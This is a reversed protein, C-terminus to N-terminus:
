GRHTSWKLSISWIGLLGAVVPACLASVIPLRYRETVQLNGRLLADSMTVRLVSQTGASDDSVNAPKGPTSLILECHLLLSVDSARHRAYTKRRRLLLYQLPSLYHYESSECSWIAGYIVISKTRTV